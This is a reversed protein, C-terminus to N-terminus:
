NASPREIHDIVLTEVPGTAPRLELGFKKLYSSFTPQPDSAVTGDKGDQTSDASGSGTDTFDYRGTLGTDDEIPRLGSGVSTVLALFSSITADYVTMGKADTVLFGGGPLSTGAPHVENPDSEKLKPGNRGIVLSYVAGQKVERHAKLHCREAFMQRLMARLMAARTQSRQWEAQDSESIKAEIDYNETAVWAPYGKVRDAALPVTTGIQPSYANAIQRLLPLGLVHYGDATIKLDHRSSQPDSPRISVVEFALDGATAAGAKHVRVAASVQATGNGPTLGTVGLAFFLCETRWKSTMM